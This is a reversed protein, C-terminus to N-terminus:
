FSSLESVFGQPSPGFLFSQHFASLLSHSWCPPCEESRVRLFEESRVGFFSPRRAQNGSTRREPCHWGVVFPMPLCASFANFFGIKANCFRQFVTAFANFVTNKKRICCPFHFTRTKRRRARRENGFVAQHSCGSRVAQRNTRLPAKSIM